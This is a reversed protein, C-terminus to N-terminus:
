LKSTYFVYLKYVIPSDGFVHAKFLLYVLSYSLLCFVFFVSSPISSTGMYRECTGLTISALSCQRCVVRPGGGASSGKPDDRDGARWLPHHQRCVLIFLLWCCNALLYTICLLYLMNWILIFVLIHEYSLLSIFSTMYAHTALLTLYVIIGLMM